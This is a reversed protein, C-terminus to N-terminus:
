LFVLYQWTKCFINNITHRASVARVIFIYTSDAENYNNILKLIKGHKVQEYNTEEKIGPTVVFWKQFLGVFCLTASPLNHALKGRPYRYQVSDTIVKKKM